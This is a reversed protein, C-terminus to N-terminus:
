DEGLDFDPRGHWQAVIEWIADAVYDEPLYISFGYWYEGGIQVQPRRAHDSVETRYSVEDSLRDLSTRM